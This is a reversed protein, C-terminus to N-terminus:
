SRKLPLVIKLSAALNRLAMVAVGNKASRWLKIHEALTRRVIDQTSAGPIMDEKM